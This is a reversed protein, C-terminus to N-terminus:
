HRSRTSNIQALTKLPRVMWHQISQAAKLSRCISYVPLLMELRLILLQLPFTLVNRDCVKAEKRWSFAIYPSLVVGGILFLHKHHKLVWYILPKAMAGGKKGCCGDVINCVIQRTIKNM